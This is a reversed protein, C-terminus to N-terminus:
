KNVFITQTPYAFVIGEKEFQEKISFNIKQQTNMYENYDSSNLYYVVEFNLSFDGFKNFHVRDTETIEISDIIDKVIVPIKKLKETSTDYVVGFTFVIRRKQMKKYNHVRTSTLEKNSVVLEEGQLTQIRTSKVGIKKVTGMDSGIIIFDGVQFPKDFYISFSSFIDSLINQIAFAVAIGGIGLGAVLTSINYGLNQIIILVAVVWLLIKTLKSLLNALAPDTKREAIRGFGFDILGQVSKVGYYIGATLLLYFVAKNLFEPVEIFKLAFFLAFFFYFPWGISDIIKIILDDFETRTHDALKKIKRIIVQQFIKLAIIILVFIGLAILYEKILNNLFNYNLFNYNLIEKLMFQRMIFNDAM